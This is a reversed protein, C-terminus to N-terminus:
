IEELSLEPRAADRGRASAATGTGTGTGTGETRRPWWALRGLLVALSPVLVTAMVFACLAIGISVAFGMQTLFGVGALMLAAFSGALVLGASAVAPASRGAAIRGAERIPHGEAVEERLREMTLINYDTGIAVVFLYLVIPITFQLGADGKLRQFVDVSAGFTAAFGLFVAALLYLPAAISRLLLALILAILGAALPLAVSLDRSNAARIDAYSAPPGGVTVTTGATAAAHAAARLPGAVVDLGASGYPDDSLVADIEVVAGDANPKPPRVSDVGKVAKVADSLASIRDAGVRSGDDSKLYMAVPNIAGPAFGKQLMAFSKVSEKGAPLQGLPDYDLKFGAAGAALVALLAAAALGTAAPRRAVLRGIVAAPGAASNREARQPLYSKSPWFVRPGIVTLLAPVLSLAAALTVAVGIALTPGLSRFSGLSDVLLTLFAVVVVAAASFVARGVRSVAQVVAETRDDGVRLRERYRFLLFLIYDTGVGFLVVIMLVPAFTAVHYGFLKAAAGALGGAVVQVLGVALVPLVAAVPSRFILLQLIIILGVTAGGILGAAKAVAESNDTGIPAQGTLGASLGTGGIAAAAKARLAKVADATKDDNAPTDFAVQGLQVLKNGSLSAPATTVDVVDPVRAAKLAAVVDGVKKTDQDGLSAGDVRSFVIVGTSAPRDPFAAAAVHEARASEAHAPLFNSPDSDVSKALAPLVAVSLVAAVIWGAIVRWPHAAVARSWREIM